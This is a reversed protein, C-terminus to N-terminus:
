SAAAQEHAEGGCFAASFVQDYTEAFHVELGEKAEDAVESFDARNGEPLVLTTVGSRRAAIVKEKIGGVPLVRGTLTVEGTMALNERVPRKSALSLLATVITCGASPGDKPTAGAPVHVHLLSDEFFAPDFGDPPARDRFFGRAFSHAIVASEQMVDGLQGTTRLGGKGKESPGVVGSEVYLTSGGMSTWALGMVVGPPPQDWIRESSFVPQGVYDALDGEGVVIAGVPQGAGAGDTKSKKKGGKGKPRRKDGQPAERSGEGGEGGTQVLQLALKRYVKDLHKQLNRVGSERCYSEILARLAESSVRAAEEQVGTRERAEPELYSRAIAQKESATYGSLQIVEMRDLLPGPIHEVVNATCVFLVRSLDLPVDLYHDLFAGNQEPDLLELLASAPDGTTGRGLKDIEDILVLPNSAGTKKLCQVLKGPMAGVYTRRHGKIEAVDHLGGVSFRFYERNLARAISRAISTKGVGPPGSLCLIKGQTHGVLKAVAIFELIRSKVDEMGFHDENLVGRARAIDLIEESCKGWPLSTLWDLYNRTVNFESSSPELGALKQLEEDVVQVVAEPTHERLPEFKEQFRELLASKDDKEMGLEKKISKLQEMLFYRRQNDSIKEEVRKSIDAQLKSMELEKKLLLLTRNLREPVSTEELVAQLEREEGSSLTAGLDALRSPDHLDQNQAFSQLQEKHLPNQRLLDKITAVVEMATAKVVDDERDYDDDRLNQCLFQLPDEGAVAVKKLRRHGMLLAQAPTEGEAETVHHVQALTGVEYLGEELVGSAVGGGPGPSM